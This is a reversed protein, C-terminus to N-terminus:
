YSKLEGFAEKSTKRNSPSLHLHELDTNTVFQTRVYTWDRGTHIAGCDSSNMCVHHIHNYELIHDNGQFTIHFGNLAM